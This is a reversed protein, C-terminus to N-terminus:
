EVGLDRAWQAVTSHDKHGFLGGIVSFPFGAARAERIIERRVNAVVDSPYRHRNAKLADQKIGYEECAQYAIRALSVRQPIRVSDFLPSKLCTFSTQNM